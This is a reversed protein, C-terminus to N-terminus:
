RPSACTRCRSISASVDRQWRGQRSYRDARVPKGIFAFDKAQKLRPKPDLDRGAAGKALAGYRLTRGSKAHTVAGKATTLEGAPVGLRAAAEAVLALRAAAAVVRFGYQGTARVASSGGTIQGAVARALASYVSKPLRTLVSGKAFDGILGEALWANAFATDAPAPEVTLLDWDADLEDAVM